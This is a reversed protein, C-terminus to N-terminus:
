IHAKYKKMLKKMLTCKDLKNKGKNKRTKIKKKNLQPEEKVFFKLFQLM